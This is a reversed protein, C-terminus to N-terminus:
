AFLRWVVFGVLVCVVCILLILSMDVGMMVSREFGMRITVRM